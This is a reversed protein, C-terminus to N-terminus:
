FNLMYALKKGNRNWDFYKRGYELANPIHNRLNELSTKSATKVMCRGLEDVDRCKYIYGLEGRNTIEEASDIDSTIFACGHFLAEAYVNPTGGELTSTLVFCKAEAYEEYLKQKDSISGTFCIRSELHPYIRFFEKRFEDFRSDVPGVMKITWDELLHQVKSFALLLDYNNKQVTGIRGVTLFVNKKNEAEAKIDLNMINLFGNPLYRCAFPVQHNRNLEDRLSSSSTAIITCQKAFIKVADCGWDINKMWYGNMDLGCYVKGDPRLKRYETLFQITEDYIGHLILMDMKMYNEKLYEYYQNKMDIANDRYVVELGPLVGLYSYDSENSGFMMVPRAGIENGLSYGTLCKDKLFEFDGWCRYGQIAPTYINNVDEMEYSQEFDVIRELLMDQQSCLIVRLHTNEEKIGNNIHAIIKNGMEYLGAVTEKPLIDLQDILNESEQMLENLAKTNKPKIQLVRKWLEVAEEHKEFEGVAQVALETLADVDDMGHELLKKKGLEYYEEGKGVYKEVDLRGYHHVPLDSKLIKIGNRKVSAEVSEHMPNEFRICNKNPFLRTKWSPYWGSGAEEDPYEGKNRTWGVVYPPEVYNRTVISYAIPEVTRKRVLKNIGDYDLHSMMEDADLVLIWNGGAQALSFNRAESFDHTWEFDYVKAGFTEAIAKTRDTSGTDVVIIEDVVPMVSMLCAPLCDEEDKVIMCLSLVPKKKGDSEKQADFKNLVARAASLIGDDIGFTIMAERIDQMAPGYKKQRLLADILLFAIRRNQPYLVKAERFVGEARQFQESESIGSFYAARTNEVNPSLIFGKELTELATEKSGTQWQLVGLNAYAEGYAPDSAIAKKFFEGSDQQKNKEYALVGLLNLAPASLENISLARKADQYAEEHLGLGAKCYGALELTRPNGQKNQPIASIAELAQKFRESEILMEALRHYVAEEEPTYKIADILTVVGKDVEERQYLKEAESMLNLVRVRKGEHTTADIDKWKYDFTQKSGEPFLAQCLVFVDGSIVNRYGEIESRLCYDYVESGTELEEDFPGLQKALNGHFLMCFDGLYRSFARRYHNKEHFASAYDELQHIGIDSSDAVYQRGFGGANTMPGVIGTGKGRNLCKMMESLWQDAVIVHERLLVIYEGSSAEMGQNYCQAPLAKQGAQILKFNSQRKVEQRIWKLAKQNVGSSVFILEFNSSTNKKISGVCKKLHESRGHVTIIISVTGDKVDKKM